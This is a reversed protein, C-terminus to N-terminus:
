IVHGALDLIKTLNQLKVDPIKLRWRSCPVFMCLSGLIIGLTILATSYDTYQYITYISASAIATNRARLSTPGCSM